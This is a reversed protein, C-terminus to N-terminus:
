EVPEGRTQSLVKGLNDLITGWGAQTRAQYDPLVGEHTLTLLCGSGQPAIEVTVRTFDASFQPVGFSFVLRRPREIELYEGKHIVDVGDRRDVFLFQGGVRADIEATVMQGTATAFLFQSAKAPDLWADFVREVSASFVHTVQIRHREDDM